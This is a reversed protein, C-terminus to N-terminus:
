PHCEPNGHGKSPPGAPLLPCTRTMLKAEHAPQPAPTPPRLHGPAERRLENGLYFSTRPTMMQGRCHFNGSAPFSGSPTFPPRIGPTRPRGAHMQAAPKERDAGGPFVVADASLLTRTHSHTHLLTHTHALTHTFTHAYARTLTHTRVHTCTFTCACIHIVFTHPHTHMHAFTHTHTRTFTLVSGSTHANAHMHTHTCVHMYTHIHTCMYRHAHTQAGTHHLLSGRLMNVAPSVRPQEDM